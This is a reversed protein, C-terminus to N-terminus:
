FNVVIATQQLNTIQIKFLHRTEEVISNLYLNNKVEGIPINVM